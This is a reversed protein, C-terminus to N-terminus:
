SLGRLAPGHTTRHSSVQESALDLDRELAVAVTSLEDLLSANVNQLKATEIDEHARFEEVSVAYYVDWLRVCEPCRTPVNSQVVSQLTAFQLSPQRAPGHVARHEAVQVSTATVLHSLTDAHASLAAILGPNGMKLKAGALKKYARIEEVTAAHYIRWLRTCEACDTLM